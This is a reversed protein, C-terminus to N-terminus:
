SLSNCKKCCDKYHIPFSHLLDARHIKFRRNQNFHWDSASASQGLRLRALNSFVENLVFTERLDLKDNWCFVVNTTIISSYYRNNTNFIFFCQINPPPMTFYFIPLFIYIYTQLSESRSTQIITILTSFLIIHIELFM